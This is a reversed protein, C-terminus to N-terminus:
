GYALIALGLALIFLNWFKLVFATCKGCCGLQDEKEAPMEKLHLDSFNNM